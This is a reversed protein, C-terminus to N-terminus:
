AARQYCDFHRHLHKEWSLTPIFDSLADVEFSELQIAIALRTVAKTGPEVARKAIGLRTVAKTGPEVARKAIGPRAAETGPRAVKAIGPIAGQSVAAPKGFDVRSCFNLGRVDITFLGQISGGLGVIAESCIQEVVM